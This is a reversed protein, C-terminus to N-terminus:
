INASALRSAGNSVSTDTLMASFLHLQPSTGAGDLIWRDRGAAKAAYLRADAAHWLADPHDFDMSDAGGISISLYIPTGSHVAIPTARVALRMREAAEAAAPGHVGPKFIAFEEGGIRGFIDGDELCGKVARALARLAADGMPHGYRDNIRKFEDADCIFLTGEARGLGEELACVFGERNLTGTLGDHRARRDLQSYARQLDAHAKELGIKAVELEDRAAKLRSQQYFQWASAPGAIAIPCVISLLLGTGALSGGLYITAMKAASLTAVLSLFAAIVSKIAIHRMRVSM